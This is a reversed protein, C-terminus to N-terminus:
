YRSEVFEFIRAYSAPVEDHESGRSFGIEHVEKAFKICSNRYDLVTQLDEPSLGEGRFFADLTQKKLM